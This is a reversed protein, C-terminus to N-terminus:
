LRIFLFYIFYCTNFLVEINGFYSLKFFSTSSILGVLYEHQWKKYFDELIDDRDKGPNQAIAVLADFQDTMNTASHYEQM